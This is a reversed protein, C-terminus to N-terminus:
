AVWSYATRLEVWRFFVWVFDAARGEAGLRSVWTHCEGRFWLPGSGVVRWNVVCGGVLQAWESEELRSYRIASEPIESKGHYVKSYRERLFRDIADKESASLTSWTKEEVCVFGCEPFWTNMSKAVMVIGPTEGFWYYTVVDALALVLIGVLVICVIILVRKIRGM